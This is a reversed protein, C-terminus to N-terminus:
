KQSCAKCHPSSSCVDTFHQQIPPARMYINDKKRGVLRTRAKGSFPARSCTIRAKKAVLPTRHLM